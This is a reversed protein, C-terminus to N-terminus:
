TWPPEELHRSLTNWHAEHSSTMPYRITRCGPETWGTCLSSPRFRLPWFGVAQRCIGHKPPHQVGPDAPPAAERGAADPHVKM